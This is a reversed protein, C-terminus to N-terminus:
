PLVEGERAAGERRLCGVQNKEFGGVALFVVDAEGREGAASRDGVLSIRDAILSTLGDGGATGPRAVRKKGLQRACGTM